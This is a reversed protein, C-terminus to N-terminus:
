SDHLYLGFVVSAKGLGLGLRLMALSFILIEEIFLVVIHLNLIRRNHTASDWTMFQSSSANYDALFGVAGRQKYEWRLLM